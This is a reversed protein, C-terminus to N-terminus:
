SGGGRRKAGELRKALLSLLAIYDLAEEPSDELLKHARPNRLGLVAGAFLFMMGQQEDKDSQDALDNFVLIPNNPSFVHQMLPAGDLDHRGSKEKVFNVLAKAADEVANAYHRDRYLDACATAIRPHLDLGEFAARTLAATDQGFEARKEELRAILGELRTITQPIGAAFKAQRTAASDGMNYGGHWINQYGHEHFEPSNPGYIEMVTMKINEEVTYRRQDDYPVQRPDLARVEEVRRKIKAIARDIEEPSTFVKIELSPANQSRRRTAMFSGGETPDPNLTVSM